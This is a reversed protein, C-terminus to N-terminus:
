NYVGVIPRGKRSSSIHPGIRPICLDSVSVHIHFNHSLGRLEWFLFIYVSIGNCHVYPPLNWGFWNLVVQGGELLLPIDDRDRVRDGVSPYLNFSVVERRLPTFSPKTSIECNMTKISDFVVCMIFQM